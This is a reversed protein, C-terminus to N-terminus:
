HLVGQCVVLALYLGLSACWSVGYEQGIGCAGGQLAGGGRNESGGAGGARGGRM